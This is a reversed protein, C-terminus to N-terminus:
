GTLDLKGGSQGSPDKVRPTSQNPDDQASDSNGEPPPEWIKRGDADRDSAGHDQETEGIGAASEAKKDNQVQREKSAAEQQTREVESGARQSLASGAAGGVIGMSGVNM